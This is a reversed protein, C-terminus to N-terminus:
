ALPLGQGLGSEFGFASKADRGTVRSGGECRFQAVCAVLCCRLCRSRTVCAVPGLLAPLPVSYRLCVSRTVCAFPVPCRLCRSRTVCAFPVPCRLCRFSLSAQFLAWYLTLTKTTAEFREHYVLMQSAALTLRVQLAPFPL